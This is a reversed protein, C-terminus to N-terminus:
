GGLKLSIQPENWQRGHLIVPQNGIDQSLCEANSLGTAKGKGVLDSGSHDLGRRQKQDVVELL